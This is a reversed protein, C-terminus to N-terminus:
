LHAQKYIFNLLSGLACLFRFGIQSNLWTRCNAFRARAQMEHADIGVVGLIWPLGGTVLNLYAAQYDKGQLARELCVRLDKAACSQMRRAKLLQILPAIGLRVQSIEKGDGDATQERARWELLARKIVILSYLQADYSVQGDSLYQSNYKHLKPNALLGEVQVSLPAVCLPCAEVRGSLEVLARLRASSSSPSM